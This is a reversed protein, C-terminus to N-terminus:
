IVYAKWCGTCGYGRRVHLQAPKGDHAPEAIYGCVSHSDRLGHRCIAGGAPCDEHDALWGKITDVDISGYSKRVLARLRDRRAVSDEQWPDGVNFQTTRGSVYHNTHLRQSEPREEDSYTVVRGVGSGGLIEAGAINGEGDCFCMNAAGVLPTRRLLDICQWVNKMEFCTRKLPYHNVLGVICNHMATSGPPPVANVFHSVGLHNMGMYGLQGAFTFTCARPRGDSPHLHLVIGFSDM